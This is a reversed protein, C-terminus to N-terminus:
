WLAVDKLKEDRGIMSNGIVGQGHTLIGRVSGPPKLLMVTSMFYLNDVFCLLHGRHSKFLCGESRSNPVADSNVFICM